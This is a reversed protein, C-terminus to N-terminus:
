MYQKVFYIVKTVITVMLYKKVSLISKINNPIIQKDQMSRPGDSFDEVCSSEASSCDKGACFSESLSVHVRFESQTNTFSFQQGQEAPPLM